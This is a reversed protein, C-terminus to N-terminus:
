ISIFIVACFFDKMRWTSSSCTEGLVVSNSLGLRSLMIMGLGCMM